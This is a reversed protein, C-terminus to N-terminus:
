SELRAYDTVQTILYVIYTHIYTNIYKHIYTHLINLLLGHTPTVCRGSNRIPSVTQNHQFGHLIYLVFPWSMNGGGGGGGRLPPWSILDNKCLFSALDVYGTKLHCNCGILIDWLAFMFTCRTWGWKISMM